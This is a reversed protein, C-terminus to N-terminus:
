TWPIEKQMTGRRLRSFCLLSNGPRGAELWAVVLWAVVLRAVVLQDAVLGAVVVTVAVTAETPSLATGLPNPARCGRPLPLALDTPADGPEADGRRM